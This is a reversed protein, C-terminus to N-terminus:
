NKAIRRKAAKKAQQRLYGSPEVNVYTGKTKAFQVYSERWRGVDTAYDQVSQPIHCNKGGKAVCKQYKGYNGPGWNYAYLASNLNGDYNKLYRAIENVGIEVNKKFDFLTDYDKKKTVDRYTIPMIQMLGRAGATSVLDDWGKSEIAVMALVLEVPVSQARCEDILAQAIRQNKEHDVRHPKKRNAKRIRVKAPSNAAQVRDLYAAIEEVDSDLVPAQSNEEKVEDVIESHNLVQDHMLPATTESVDQNCSPCEKEPVAKPVEVKFTELAVAWKGDVANETAKGGDDFLTIRRLDADNHYYVWIKQGIKLRTKSEDIDKLEVQVAYNGSPLKFRALVEGTTGEPVTGLVNRTGRFNMTERANLGGRVFTVTGAYVPLAQLLALVLGLATRIRSPRRSQM